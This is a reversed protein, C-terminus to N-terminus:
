RAYFTSQLAQVASSHIARVQLMTLFLWICAVYITLRTFQDGVRSGFPSSGGAGGLAGILGGGKGRQILVLLVMFLSLLILILNLPGALWSLM